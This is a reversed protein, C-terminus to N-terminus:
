INDTRACAHINMMCGYLLETLVAGRLANEGALDNHRTVRSWRVHIFSQQERPKNAYEKEQPRSYTFTMSLSNDGEAERIEKYGRLGETIGGPSLFTGMKSASLLWCKSFFYCSQMEDQHHM